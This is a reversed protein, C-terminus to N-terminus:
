TKAIIQSITNLSIVNIDTNSFVDKSGIKKWLALNGNFSFSVMVLDKIWSDGLSVQAIFLFVGNIVSLRYGAYVKVNNSEFKPCM